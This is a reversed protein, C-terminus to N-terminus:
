YHPPKESAPGLPNVQDEMSRLRDTMKSLTAELKEITRYQEHIANRLEEIALEHFAVKTELEVSNNSDMGKGISSPTLRTM